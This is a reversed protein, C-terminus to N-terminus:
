NVVNDNVRDLQGIANYSLEWWVASVHESQILLSVAVIEIWLLKSEEPTPTKLGYNSMRQGNGPYAM